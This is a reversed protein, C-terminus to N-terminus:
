NVAKSTGTAVDALDMITLLSSAGSDNLHANIFQEAQQAGVAVVRDKARQLAGDRVAAPALLAERLVHRAKNSLWPKNRDPQEASALQEAAEVVREDDHAEQWSGAPAPAYTSLLLPALVAHANERIVDLPRTLSDHLVHFDWASRDEAENESLRKKAKRTLQQTLDHAESFPYHPKVFAIGATATLRRKGPLLEATFREFARLYARTFAVAVSARCFVTVDDGGVLIPLIWQRADVENVASVLAQRTAEELAISFEHYEDPSELRDIVAGIGNGDAHVVATWGEPELDKDLEQVIADELGKWSTRAREARRWVTDALASVPTIEGDLIPRIGTAPLGNVACQELFPTMPFRAKAAPRSARARALGRRAASLREMPRLDDDQEALEVYGWVDLGPAERLARETVDGVISRGTAADNVLLAAFGSVAVVVSANQVAATAEHVWAPLDTVLASAGVHFRQRNSQFIFDQTSGCEILVWCQTTM